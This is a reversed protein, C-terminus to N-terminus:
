KTTPDLVYMSLARRAVVVSVATFLTVPLKEAPGDQSPSNDPGQTCAEGSMAKNETM